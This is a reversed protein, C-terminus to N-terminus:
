PAGRLRANVSIREESKPRLIESQWQVFHPASVIVRFAVPPVVLVSDPDASESFSPEREGVRQFALVAAIPNGAEDRVSVALRAGKPGLELAVTSVQNVSVEVNKWANRNIKFFAFFPDPYGEADKYAQVTYSGPLLNKILFRGDAKTRTELRVFRGVVHAKDYAYVMAGVVPRGQQDHVTGAIAAGQGYASLAAMVTVAFVSLLLKVKM